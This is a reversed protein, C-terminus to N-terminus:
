LGVRLATAAVAEGRKAFLVAVCDGVGEIVEGPGLAAVAPDSVTLELHDAPLPVGTEGDGFDGTFALPRRDGM